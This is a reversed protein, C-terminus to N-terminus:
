QRDGQAPSWIKDAKTPPACYEPHTDDGSRSKSCLRCYTEDQDRMWRHKPLATNEWM